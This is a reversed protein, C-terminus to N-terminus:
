RKRFRPASAESRNRVFDIQAFAGDRSSSEGFIMIAVEPRPPRMIFRGSFGDTFEDFISNFHVMFEAAVVVAVVEVWNVRM